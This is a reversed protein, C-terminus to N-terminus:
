KRRLLRERAQRWETYSMTKADRPKPEEAQPAPAPHSSNRSPAPATEAARFLWPKSHKLKDILTAAGTVAGDDDFALASVDALKLGDMDVIGAAMAHNRLESMKLQHQFRGLQAQVDAINPPPAPTDTM